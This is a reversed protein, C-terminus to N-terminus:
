KKMAAKVEDVINKFDINRKIIHWNGDVLDYTPIISVAWDTMNLSNQGQLDSIQIWSLKQKQVASVWDIRKSDLSISVVGFKPDNLIDWYANMLKVHNLECIESDSEWFEVLIVKKSSIAKPDFPKGDLTKGKIKPAPSGAILKMLQEFDAGETIGEDTRKQEPSFKKYIGYYKEPDKKYDIQALVFAEIDNQPKKAIYDTLVKADINRIETTAQDFQIKLNNYKKSYVVVHSNNAYLLDGISDAHAKIVHKQATEIAYYDSLENQIKSDAKITPYLFIKGTDSTITYNGGELYIEFLKRKHNKNLDPTIFMDYFGPRPLLNQAQFKGDSILASILQNGQPDSIVLIGNNIGTINGEFKVYKTRRCSCFILVFVLLYLYKM